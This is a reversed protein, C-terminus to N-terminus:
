GPVPSTPTPALCPATLCLRVNQGCLDAAPFMVRETTRIQGIFYGFGCEMSLDHLGDGRQPDRGRLPTPAHIPTLSCALPTPPTWDMM